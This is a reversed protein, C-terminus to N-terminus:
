RENVEAGDIHLDIDDASSCSGNIKSESDLVLYVSLQYPTGFVVDQNSIVAVGDIDLSLTITGANTNIARINRVVARKAKPASYLETNVGPVTDRYLNRSISM